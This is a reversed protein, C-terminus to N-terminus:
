PPYYTFRTPKEEQLIKRTRGIQEKESSVSDTIKKTVDDFSAEIPQIEEKNKRAM